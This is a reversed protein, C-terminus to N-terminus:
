PEKQGTGPKAFSRTVHLLDPRVVVTGNTFLPGIYTRHRPRVSDVLAPDPDYHIICVAYM